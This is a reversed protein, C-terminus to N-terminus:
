RVRDDRSRHFPRLALKGALHALPSFLLTALMEPLVTGTLMTILDVGGVTSTLAILTFFGRLVSAAISYLARVAISDRFVNGSLIGCLYGAPMYLLPLLTLTSGGLSEIVVAAILGFIAGWREGETIAISIVLPLILDPIVGFPRFKAFLTTALLSFVILLVGCVVGRALSEGDISLRLRWDRIRDPFNPKRNM